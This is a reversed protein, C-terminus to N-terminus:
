KENDSIILWEGVKKRGESLALARDNDSLEELIKHKSWDVPKSKVIFVNRNEPMRALFDERVKKNLGLVRDHLEIIWTCGKTNFFEKEKFHEFEGGEIDCILLIRGKQEKSIVSKVTQDTAKGLVQIRDSAGNLISNESISSRGKKSMEFCIAKSIQNAKLLGLSYYGDGAGLNILTDFKKQSCIYDIIEKEYLGLVKLGLVGSSTNTKFTLKLGKFKGDTVMGGFQKFIAKSVRKRRLKVVAKEIVEFVKM